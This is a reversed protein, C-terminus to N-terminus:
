PQRRREKPVLELAALKKELEVSVENRIVDVVGAMFESQQNTMLKLIDEFNNSGSAPEPVIVPTEDRSTKKIEEKMEKSSKQVARTIAELDQSLTFKIKNTIDDLATRFMDQIEKTHKKIDTKFDTQIKTIKELNARASEERGAKEATLAEKVVDMILKREPGKAKPGGLAASAEVGAVFRSAMLEVADENLFIESTSDNVSSGASKDLGELAKAVVKELMAEEVVVRNDIVLGSKEEAFGKIEKLNSETVRAFGNIDLSCKKITPNMEKIAKKYDEIQVKFSSISRDFSKNIDSAQKSFGAFAEKLNEPNFKDVVNSFTELRGTIEELKVANDGFEKLGDAIGGYIDGAEALRDKLAALDETLGPIHKKLKNIKSVNENILKVAASADIGTEELGALTSKLSNFSKYLNKYEDSFRKAANACNQFSAVVQSYDYDKSGDTM